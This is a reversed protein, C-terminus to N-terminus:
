PVTSTTTTSSREAVCTRIAVETAELRACIGTVILTDVIQGVARGQNSQAQEYCEHVRDDDSISSGRPPSPTTCEVLVRGNRQNSRAISTLIVGGGIVVTALVVTLVLACAAIIGNRRRLSHLEAVSRDTVDLRDAFTLIAGAMQRIDTILEAIMGATILQRAEEVASARAEARVDDDDM